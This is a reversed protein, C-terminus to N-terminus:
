SAASNKSRAAPHQPFCETPFFYELDVGVLTRERIMVCLLIKTKLTANSVCQYKASILLKDTGLAPFQQSIFTRTETLSSM